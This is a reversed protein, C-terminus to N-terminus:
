ARASTAPLEQAVTPPKLPLTISVTTGGQTASEIAVTGGHLETTRRVIALGLGGGGAKTTFFPDFVRERIDEAIGPGEDRVRVTVTDTGRSISIHIAGTGNMAQAANLLINLFAARLLESDGALAVDPGQVEVRVHEGTPDRRMSALADLLLPRLEIPQLRPARPRAYLQLDQILETLADIRDIIERMVASDPDDPPRRPLMVQMAARIGALPNKVEHAVVAALQGVRALAQQERLREEAAKRETIDFRIATYQYPKGTADLFPVITTDV